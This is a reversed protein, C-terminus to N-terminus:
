IVSMQYTVNPHMEDSRRDEQGRKAGTKLWRRLDAKESAVKIGGDRPPNSTATGFEVDLLEVSGGSRMGQRWLLLKCFVRRRLFPM